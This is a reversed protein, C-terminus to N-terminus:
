LGSVFKAIKRRDVKFKGSHGQDFDHCVRLDHDFAINTYLLLNRREIMLFIHDPCSQMSMCVFFTIIYRYFKTHPPYELFIKYGYKIDKRNKQIKGRHITDRPKEIEGLSHLYSHIKIELNAQM